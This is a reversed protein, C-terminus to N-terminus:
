SEAFILNLPLEFGPLLADTLLDDDRVVRTAAHNDHIHVARHEPYVCWVRQAGGALYDQVKENVASARDTPSIVEIALAPVAPFYDEGNWVVRALQEPPIYVGDAGRVMDPDDPVAFHLGLEGGIRGVLANRAGIGQRPQWGLALARDYLYRDLAALLAVEVFGHDGKSPPMVRVEGRVLEHRNGDDPLAMFQAVSIRKPQAVM